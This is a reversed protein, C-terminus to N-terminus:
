SNTVLEIAVAHDVLGTPMAVSRKFRGFHSLPEELSDRLPNDGNIGSAPDATGAVGTGMNRM